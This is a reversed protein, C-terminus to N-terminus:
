KVFCYLVGFHDPRDYASLNSLIRYGMAKAEAAAAFLEDAAVTLVGVGDELVDYSSAGPHADRLMAADGTPEVKPKAPAAPAAPATPAPSKAPPTADAM